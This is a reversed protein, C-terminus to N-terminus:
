NFRTTNITVVRENEKTDSWETNSPCAVVQLDHENNYVIRTKADFKRWTTGGDWSVQKPYGRWWIEVLYNDGNTPQSVLTKTGGSITYFKVVWASPDDYLEDQPVDREPYILCIVVSETFRNVPKVMSITYEIGNINIMDNARPVRELDTISMTVTFPLQEIDELLRLDEVFQVYNMDEDKRIIARKLTRSTEVAKGEQYHDYETDTFIVMVDTALPNRATQIDFMRRQYADKLNNDM